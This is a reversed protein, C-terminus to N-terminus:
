LFATGPIALVLALALALALALPNGKVVRVEIVEIGNGIIPKFTGISNGIRARIRSGIRNRIRGNIGFHGHGPSTNVGKARLGQSHSNFWCGQGQPPLPIFFIPGTADM